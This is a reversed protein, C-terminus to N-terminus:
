DILTQRCVCSKCDLYEGTGCSKDCKCDCNSLNWSFAKGCVMKNILDEKCECRCKDENRTQRSNCVSSTLRCVCKCAKHWVLQRTENIRQM